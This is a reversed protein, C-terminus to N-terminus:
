TPDDTDIVELDELDALWDDFLKVAPGNGSQAEKLAGQHALWALHEIRSDQLAKGIGTGWHREFAVIASPGATVTREAGGHVFRLTMKMSTRM